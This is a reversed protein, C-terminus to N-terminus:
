SDSVGAAGQLEQYSFDLAGKEDLGSKSGTHLLDIGLHARLAQEIVEYDHQGARIAAIKLARLVSDELYITTKRRMCKRKSTENGGSSQARALSGFSRAANRILWLWCQVRHHRASR